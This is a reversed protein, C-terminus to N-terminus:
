SESEKSSVDSSQLLKVLQRICWGVAWVGVIAAAIQAGQEPELQLVPLSLEHVVTVTCAGTCEIVTPDAM